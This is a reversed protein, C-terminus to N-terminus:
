MQEIAVLCLLHEFTKLKSCLQILFNELMTKIKWTLIM